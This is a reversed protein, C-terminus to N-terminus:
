KFIPKLVFGAPAERVEIISAGSIRRCSVMFREEGWTKEFGCVREPNDFVDVVDGNVFSYFFWNLISFVLFFSFSFFSFSFSSFVVNLFAYIGNEKEYFSRFYVFDFISCDKFFVFM